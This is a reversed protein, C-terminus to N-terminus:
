FLERSERAIRDCERITSIGGTDDPRSDYRADNWSRLFLFALVMAPLLPSLLIM